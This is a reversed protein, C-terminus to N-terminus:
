AAEQKKPGRKRRVALRLGEIVQAMTWYREIQLIAPGDSPFQMRPGVLQVDVELELIAKRDAENDCTFVRFGNTALLFSWGPLYLQEDYVLVTRKVKM